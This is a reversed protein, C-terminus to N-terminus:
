NMVEGNGDTGLPGVSGSRRVLVVRVLRDPETVAFLVHLPPVELVRLGESLDTGKTQPDNTLQADIANAAATVAPREEADLWIMTLQDSAEKSWVVTYRSM